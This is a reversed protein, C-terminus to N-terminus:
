CFLALAATEDMEQTQRLDSYADTKQHDLARRLLECRPYLGECEDLRGGMVVEGEAGSLLPARTKEGHSISPRKLNAAREWGAAGTEKNQTRYIYHQCFVAWEGRLYVGPEIHIRMLNNNINANGNGFGCDYIVACCKVWRESLDSFARRVPRVDM